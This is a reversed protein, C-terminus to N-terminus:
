RQPFLKSVWNPWLYFCAPYTLACSGCSIQNSLIVSQLIIWTPLFLGALFWLKWYTQFSVLLFNSPLSLALSVIASIESLNFWVLMLGSISCLAQWKVNVEVALVCVCYFPTSFFCMSKIYDCLRGWKQHGLVFDVKFAVNEVRSRLLQKKTKVTTIQKLKM